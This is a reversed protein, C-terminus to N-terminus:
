HTNFPKDLIIWYIITFFIKFGLEWVGFRFSKELSEVVM